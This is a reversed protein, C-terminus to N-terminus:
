TGAPAGELQSTCNPCRTAGLPIESVCYPCKKTEVAAKPQSANYARVVLFMVLAIILFTIISNIWMGYYIGPANAAMAAAASPYSTSSLNIYLGNFDVGGLLLGIPPMIIWDVLGKIVAAFATAMIFAVALDIVNGKSIFAKFENWM